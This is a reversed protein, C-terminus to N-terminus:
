CRCARRRRSWGFILTGLALLSASPEPVVVVDGLATGWRVEDIVATQTGSSGNTGSTNFFRLLYEDQLGFTGSTASESATGLAFASLQAELSGDNYWAQYATQDFLWLTATGPTAGSLATGTNTYRTVVLYTVGNSLSNGNYNATTSSDYAIGPKRNATGSNINADAAGIFFSTSGNNAAVGTSAGDNSNQSSFRVLYSNYITGTPSFSLDMAVNAGVSANNTGNQGFASQSLGGGQVAFFNSGFSLGSTSYTVSGTGTGNLTSTVAYNGSLGQGTAAVGDMSTGGALAYNFGEYVLLTGPCSACLGAWAAICLLPLKNM